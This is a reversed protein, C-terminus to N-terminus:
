SFLGWKRLFPVVSALTESAIQPCRELDEAFGERRMEILRLGEVLREIVGVVDPPTQALARRAEYIWEGQLYIPGFSHRRIETDPIHSFMAAVSGLVGREILRASKEALLDKHLAQLKPVPILITSSDKHRDLMDNM